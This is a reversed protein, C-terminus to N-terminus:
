REPHNATVGSACALSVTPASVHSARTHLRPTFTCVKLFIIVLPAARESLISSRLVRHM